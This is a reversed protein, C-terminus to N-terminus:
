QRNHAARLKVVLILARAAANRPHATDTVGVRLHFTGGHRPAGTLLGTRANLRLGRPLHGHRIAWHYRGVGFTAILHTRYRRGVRAAPLM